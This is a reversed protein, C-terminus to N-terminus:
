ILYYVYNKAWHKIYPLCKFFLLKYNDNCTFVSPFLVRLCLSVPSLHTVPESLTWLSLVPFATPPCTRSLPLAGRGCTNVFAPGEVPFSTHSSADLRRSPRGRGRSWVGETGDWGLVAQIRWVQPWALSGWSVSGSESVAWQWWRNWSCEGASEWFGWSRDWVFIKPSNPFM